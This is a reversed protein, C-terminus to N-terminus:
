VFTRQLFHVLKSLSGKQLEVLSSDLRSTGINTVIYRDPSQLKSPERLHLRPELGFSFLIVQLGHLFMAVRSYTGLLGHFRKLHAMM